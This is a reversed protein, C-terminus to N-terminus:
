ILVYEIFHHHKKICYNLTKKDVVSNFEVNLIEIRTAVYTLLLAVMFDVTISLGTQAIALMQQIYILLHVISFTEFSFIYWTDAPVISTTVLPGLSFAIATQFFSIGVFVCFYFYRNIYKHLIKKENPKATKIFDDVENLLIQLYCFM